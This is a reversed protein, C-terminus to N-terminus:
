ARKLVLVATYFQLKEQNCFALYDIKASIIMVFATKEM